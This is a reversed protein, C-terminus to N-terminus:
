RLENRSSAKLENGGSSPSPQPHLHLHNANLPPVRYGMCPAHPAPSTKEHVSSRRRQLPVARGPRSLYNQLRARGAAGEAAPGLASLDLQLRGDVMRSKGDLVSALAVLVDLVRRLRRVQDSPTVMRAYINDDHRVTRRGDGYKTEM